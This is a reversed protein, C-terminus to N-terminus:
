NKTYNPGGQPRRKIKFKELRNIITSQATQLMSVLRSTSIGENVYRDKWMEYENNFGEFRAQMHWFLTYHKRAKRARNSLDAPKDPRNIGSKKGNGM